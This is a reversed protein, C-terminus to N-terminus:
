AAQTQQAGEAAGQAAGEPQAPAQQQQAPAPEGGGAAAASGVPYEFLKMNLLGKIVDPNSPDPIGAKKAYWYTGPGAIARGMSESANAFPDWFVNKNRAQIEMSHKVAGDTKVFLPVLWKAPGKPQLSMYAQAIAANTGGVAAHVANGVNTASADLKMPILFPKYVLRSTTLAAKPLIGPGAM